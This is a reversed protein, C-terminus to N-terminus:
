PLLKRAGAAPAQLRRVGDENNAPLRNGGAPLLRFGDGGRAGVIRNVSEVPTAAAPSEEFWDIAAGFWEPPMAHGGEHLVLDLSGGPACGTWRQRAMGSMPEAANAAPAKCGNTSALLDLSEGIPAMVVGGSVVPPGAIPVIPDALGHSDLFRVPRVCREPLPGLYGGAHVAYAAATDPEHCAIEWILFAGRSQGVLFTRARDLNFRRAADAIVRQVFTVEDRRGGPENRLAWGTDLRGEGYEMGLAAPVILAYGRDIVSAQFLPHNTIAVSQGGSGYLYVMAPFPGEGEPVLARYEGGQVACTKDWGSIDCGRTKALAASGSVALLVTLLAAAGASPVKEVVSGMRGM